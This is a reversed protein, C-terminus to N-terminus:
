GLKPSNNPEGFVKERMSIIANKIKERKSYPEYADVTNQAIKNAGFAMMSLYSASAATGIVPIALEKLEHVGVIAGLATMATVAGLALFANARKEYKNRQVLFNSKDKNEM